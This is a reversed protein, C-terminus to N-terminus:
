KILTIHSKKETEEGDANEEMGKPVFPLFQKNVWGCANCAFTPIPVIGTKGTPSQIASVKKFLMVEQFTYNGCKDCTVDDADSLDVKLSPPQNNMDM